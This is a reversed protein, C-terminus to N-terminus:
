PKPFGTTGSTYVYLFVDSIKVDPIDIEADSAADLAEGLSLFRSGEAVIEPVDALVQLDRLEDLLPLMARACPRDVVAVKARSARHVHLLARGELHTNILAGIAGLKACAGQAMLMAPSNEMMINVVDGKRVGHKALVHAYRNVGANFEGYTVQEREFRLATRDPIKEAQRRCVYGMTALAGQGAADLARKVRLFQPLEILDEVFTAVRSLFDMRCFSTAARGPPM